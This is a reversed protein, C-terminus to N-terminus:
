AAARPARAPNPFAEDHLRRYLEDLSMLCDGLRAAHHTAMPDRSADTAFQAITEKLTRVDTRTASVAKVIDEHSGSVIAGILVDTIRVMDRTIAKAVMMLNSHSTM